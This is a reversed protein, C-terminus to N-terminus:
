QWQGNLYKLGANEMAVFLEDSLNHSTAHLNPPKISNRGSVPYIGMKIGMSDMNGSWFVLDNDILYQIAAYMKKQQETMVQPESVLGRDLSYSLGRSHLLLELVAPSHINAPLSKSWQNVINGMHKNLVSILLATRIRQMHMRLRSAPLDEYYRTTSLTEAELPSYIANDQAESAKQDDLSTDGFLWRRISRGESRLQMTLRISLEDSKFYLRTELIKSGDNAIDTLGEPMTMGSVRSSDSFENLEKLLTPSVFVRKAKSLARVSKSMVNLTVAGPGKVVGRPIELVPESNFSEPIIQSLRVEKSYENEHYTDTRLKLLYDGNVDLAASIVWGEFAVQRGDRLQHLFSIYQKNRSAAQLKRLVGSEKATLTRQKVVYTRLSVPDIRTIDVLTTLGNPQMLAINQIVGNRQDLSMIKGTEISFKNKLDLYNIAQGQKYIRELRKSLELKDMDTMLKSIFTNELDIEALSIVLEGFQNGESLFSILIEGAHVQASLIQGRVTYREGRTPKIVLTIIRNEATRSISESQIEKNKLSKLQTIFEENEKLISKTTSEECSPEGPRGDFPEAVATATAILFALSLTVVHCRTV